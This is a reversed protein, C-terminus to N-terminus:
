ELGVAILLVRGPTPGTALLHQMCEKTRTFCAHALDDFAARVLFTISGRPRVHPYLPSATIADAITVAAAICHPYVSSVAISKLQYGTNHVILSVMVRACGILLEVDTSGRSHERANTWVRHVLNGVLIAFFMIGQSLSLDSRLAVALDLLDSPVSICVAFPTVSDVALSHTLCAPLSFSTVLLCSRQRLIEGCASPCLSALHLLDKASNFLAAFLSFRVLQLFGDLPV